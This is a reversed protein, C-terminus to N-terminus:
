ACCIREACCVLQQFLTWVKLRRPQKDVVILADNLATHTLIRTCVCCITKAIHKLMTHTCLLIPTIIYALKGLLWGRNSKRQGLQMMNGLATDNSARAICEQLVDLRSQGLLVQGNENADHDIFTEHGLLNGVRTNHGYRVGLSLLELATMLNENNSIIVGLLCHEAQIRPTAIKSTLRSPAM